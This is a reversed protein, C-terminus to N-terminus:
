QQNQREGQGDRATWRHFAREIRGGVTLIL